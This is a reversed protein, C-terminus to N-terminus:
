LSNAIVPVGFAAYSAFRTTIPGLDKLGEITLNMLGRDIAGLVEPLDIIALRNHGFATVNNTWQGEGDPGRHHLSRVMKQLAAVDSQTGLYGCIGCM